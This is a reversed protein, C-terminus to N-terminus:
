IKEILGYIIPNGKRLRIVVDDIFFVQKGQNWVYANFQLAEYNLYADSLKLSHHVTTWKATDSAPIFLNFPTGTWIVSSDKTDITIVFLQEANQEPLFVKASLDIFNNKHHYMESLSRSYAPGWESEDFRYFKNKTISDQQIKNQDLGKWFKNEELDFKQFEIVEDSKNEGKSFIYTTGGAYNKQEILQPFYDQIIPICIPNSNALCGFYLFNNKEAKQELFLIFENESSFSAYSTYTTDQASREVYFQTIAQHSDIVSVIKKYNQEALRQDILIHEYPSQYFLRYHQREVILAYCNISLIGFVLISNIKVSHNKIHGFLVFFLFPFSFILASYQLVASVNQSYYYGILFPILFLSLFLSFNKYPFIKIQFFGFAFLLLVLTGVLISFQFIYSIFNLIFDARPKSLWSEVGAVNLQFLFINLHPLYLILIAIGCFVYPLFYKKQIYFLGVIGILGAFLLSFHHNYACLAAALVFFIANRYFKTQPSYILLSWYYVMLLVFFLGSSYPRAIQSYMITFQISALFAASILGVTENYWIKGILYILYVSLVGFLIFPLKIVWETEGFLSTLFYLVVQVFAPHGDLKVGRDILESFSDFRTRFLASFEDHTFPIDFLNYCRLVTAVLLIILLLIKNNLKM